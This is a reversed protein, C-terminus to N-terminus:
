TKAKRPRPGFRQATDNWAKEKILGTVILPDRGHLTDQSSEAMIAVREEYLDDWDERTM